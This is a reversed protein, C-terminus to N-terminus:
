QVRSIYRRLPQMSKCTNCVKRFFIKRGLCKASLRAIFRRRDRGVADWQTGSKNSLCWMPDHNKVHDDVASQFSSVNLRGSGDM